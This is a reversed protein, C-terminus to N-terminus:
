LLLEVDDTDLALLSPGIKKEEWGKEEKTQQPEATHWRLMEGVYCAFLISFVHGSIENSSASESRSKQKMLVKIYIM